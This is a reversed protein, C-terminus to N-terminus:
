DEVGDPRAARNPIQPHFDPTSTKAGRCRSGSRRARARGPATRRSRAATCNSWTASSRWAWASDPIPARASSRGPHVPRVGEPPRRRRCRDRHRHARRHHRAQREPDGGAAAAMRPSSSPMRSCAGCSGSCAIAVRGDGRACSGGGSPAAHADAEATPRACRRREATIAGCTPPRWVWGPTGSVVRSLDLLDDILRAQALTNREVVADSRGDFQGPVPACCCPGASCPTSRPACDMRCRRWSSTRYVVPPRCHHQRVQRRSWSGTPTRKSRGAHRNPARVSDTM